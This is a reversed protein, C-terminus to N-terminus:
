HHVRGRFRSAALVLGAILALYITSPEPIGTTGASGSALGGQADLEYVRIGSNWGVNATFIAQFTTATVSSFSDAVKILGSGYVSNYNQGAPMIGVNSIINGDAKLQFNTASRNLSTGDEALYLSYGSITTPAKATFTIQYTGGSNGDAFITHGAGELTSFAGGFIDRIDSGSNYTPSNSVINIATYDFPNSASRGPDGPATIVSSASAVGVLLSAILTTRVLASTIVSRVQLTPLNRESRSFNKSNHKHGYALTEKMITTEEQGKYPTKMGIAQTPVGIKFPAGSRRVTPSM